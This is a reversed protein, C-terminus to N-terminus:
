EIQLGLQASGGRDEADEFVKVTGFVGDYGPRVIINGERVRKVAEAIQPTSVEAIRALPVDLLISFENGLERILLEYQAAVRKTAVGCRLTNAIIEPLPVLSKYPIRGAEKAQAESRDALSVVRNLVGIVLPKKCKPCIGGYKKTEEPECSFDCVRHGDVHYKGEEPYFEITYLFDDASGERIIQMINDYTVDQERNFRLVNAERGLKQPSHADSNSILTITDLMSCRWNMLPDSSLGTEIAFVEPALEDFAEELSNYGSKSGFIAFWPTWAHAPILVMREDLDKIMQLLDKSTMGLIPRGDSKLNFGRSDLETNWAEAVEMNPAFVLNHVRRTEGKHKKINAVETGIMFRTKSSGDRLKYIGPTDEVLCEKMHAFWRPHTFDGTVVIDIGRIECTKAIVPLELHKSCARSYKSHIHLDLIKKIM